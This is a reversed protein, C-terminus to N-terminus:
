EVAEVTTPTTQVLLCDEACPSLEAFAVSGDMCAAERQAQSAKHMALWDAPLPSREHSGLRRHRHRVTSARRQQQQQQETVGGTAPQLWLEDLKAPYSMARKPPQMADAKLSVALM